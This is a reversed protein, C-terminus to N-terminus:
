LFSFPLATADPTLPLEMNGLYVVYGKTLKDKLEKKLLTINKAMKTSPTSSAKIEIPIIKGQDEILLDVETGASTRWFYIQPTTGRVSIRKYIESIIFTEVAAGAMPGAMLHESDRLGMLYCMTGVDSFYIKPTKVLRKNTNVFYPRLIIIQNSAELVGIWAKITNVSVGLDRAVDSQQFLQGSRAAVAKLFNQFLTLDGIQRLNRVDRELYTQIYSSHWLTPNKQSNTTLEPYGGRLLLNWFEGLPLINNKKNGEWYFPSLPTGRIEHYSFPMLKLIAARGALSESVQQMLLLNQSGTLIYQGYSDRSEDIKEKIYFLLDPAYQIEDFIVPSSYLDIFGRPDSKAANRVDPPELSVYRYDNQFLHKLMTTKGAQRPGTLVVAPFQKISEELVSKLSRPIYM